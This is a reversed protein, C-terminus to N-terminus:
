SGIRSDHILVAHKGKESPFLWEHTGTQLPEYNSPANIIAAELTDHSSHTWTSGDGRSINVYFRKM